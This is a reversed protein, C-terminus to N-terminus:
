ERVFNEAAMQGELSGTLGGVNVPLVVERVQDWIGSGWIAYELLKFDTSYDIVVAFRTGSEGALGLLWEGCRRGM